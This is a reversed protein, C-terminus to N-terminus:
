ITEPPATSCGPTWCRGCPEGANVITRMYGEPEGLRLAEELDAWARVPTESRAAVLLPLIVMRSGNREKASGALRELLEVAKEKRGLSLWVRCLEIGRKM